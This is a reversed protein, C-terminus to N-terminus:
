NASLRTLGFSWPVARTCRRNLQRAQRRWRCDAGGQGDETYAQSILAQPLGVKREIEREAGESVEYVAPGSRTAGRLPPAVAALGGERSLLEVSRQIAVQRLYEAQYISAPSKMVTYQYHLILM